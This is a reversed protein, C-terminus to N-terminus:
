RTEKKDNQEIDSLNKSNNQKLKESPIWKSLNREFNKLASSLNSEYRAKQFDRDTKLKLIHGTQTPVEKQNWKNQTESWWSDKRKQNVDVLNFRLGNGNCFDVDNDSYEKYVTKRM